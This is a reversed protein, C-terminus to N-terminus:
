MEPSVHKIEIGPYYALCDETPDCCNDILIDAAWFVRRWSTSAAQFKRVLFEYMLVRNDVEDSEDEQLERKIKLILQKDEDEDDLDEWNDEPALVSYKARELSMEAANMFARVADLDERDAKAVKM